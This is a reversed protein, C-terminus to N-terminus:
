SNKEDNKYDYKPCIKGAKPVAIRSHTTPVTGVGSIIM